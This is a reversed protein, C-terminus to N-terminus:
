DGLCVGLGRATAVLAGNPDVSAYSAIADAIRIDVVGRRQWTVMRNFRRKAILDVAYVGFASGIVRDLPSPTGGRQVHGLVTVRTEAGTMDSVRGALYHGVGGYRVKGAADTQTVPEGNEMKVSESVIIQSHNKGLQRRSEIKERVRELRYPIEPILIVDAGGAIGATLAIHGADRGMVELIMVRSHSAATFHLRDLAETAVEVATNFGVANETLGV